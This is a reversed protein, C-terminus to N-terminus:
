SVSTVMAESPRIFCHDYPISYILLARLADDAGMVFVLVLIYGTIAACREAHRSIRRSTACRGSPSRKSTAPSEGHLTPVHGLAAILLQPPLTPKPANPRLKNAELKKLSSPRPKGPRATTTLPSRSCGPAPRRIAFHSPRVAFRKRARGRFLICGM